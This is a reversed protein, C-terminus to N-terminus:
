IVSAISPSWPTPYWCYQKGDVFSLFNQLGYLAALVELENIHSHQQEPAFFGSIPVRGYPILRCGLGRHKRGYVFVHKTGAAMDITRHVLTQQSQGVM